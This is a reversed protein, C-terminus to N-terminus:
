LASRLAEAVDVPLLGLATLFGVSAALAAVLLRSALLAVVPHAILWAKIEKTEM